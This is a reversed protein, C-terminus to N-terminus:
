VPLLSKAQRMGMSTGLGGNLKVIVLRSLAHEGIKKHDPLSMVDPASEVPTIHAASIMGTEGRKVLEFYQAFTDIAVRPLNEGLMKQEFPEFDIDAM